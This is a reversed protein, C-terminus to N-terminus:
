VPNNTQVPRYDRLAKKTRLFTFILALSSLIIDFYLIQFPSTHFASMLLYQLIPLPFLFKYVDPIDVALLFLVLFNLLVYIGIFVAFLPLYKVSELFKSGFFTLAVFKPLIAYGAIGVIVAVLQLVFFRHFTKTIDRGASHLSAINPFMVTAVAGAGFLLIKGLTVAGSYYGTTIPDFFRKIMLVDLNNLAMMCLDTLIIPIMLRLVSKFQESATFDARFSINKRLLVLSIVFGAVMSVSIGVYAGLVALGAWVLVLPFVLRAFSNVVMFFSFSKYKLLGQLYGYPVIILFSLSMFISFSLLAGVDSINLFKGIFGSLLTLLALVIVGILLSFRVSLFFLSSVMKRDGKANLAAVKKILSTGFVTAPVGILYSLSLLANFTGFDAVSLHKGLLLQLLYSFFAGLFIGFGVVFSNRAEKM